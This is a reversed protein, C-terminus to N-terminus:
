LSTGGGTRMTTYEGVEKGSEKRLGKSEIAHLLIESLIM